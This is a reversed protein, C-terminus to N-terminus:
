KMSSACFAPWTEASDEHTEAPQRRRFLTAFLAKAFDKTRSRRPEFREDWRRNRSAMEFLVAMAMMDM